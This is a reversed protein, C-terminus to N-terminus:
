RARNAGAMSAWPYGPNAHVWSDGGPWPCRVVGRGKGIPAEVSYVEEQGTRMSLLLQCVLNTFM